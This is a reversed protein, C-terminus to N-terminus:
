EGGYSNPPGINAYNGGQGGQRNNGSYNNVMRHGAAGLSAQNFNRQFGIQPRYGEERDEPGLVTPPDIAKPLRKAPFIFDEPYSPDKFRVTIVTNEEIEILGKIPSDM